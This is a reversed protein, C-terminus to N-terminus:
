DVRKGQTCAGLRTQRKDDTWSSDPMPNGRCNWGDGALGVSLARMRRVRNRRTILGTMGQVM